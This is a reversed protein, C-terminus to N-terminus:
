WKYDLLQGNQGFYCGLHFVRGRFLYAKERIQQDLNYSTLLERKEIQAFLGFTLTFRRVQTMHRMSLPPDGSHRLRRRLRPVRGRFRGRENCLVSKPNKATFFYWLDCKAFIAVKLTSRVKSGNSLRRILNFNIRNLIRVTKSRVQGSNFRCYCGWFKISPGYFM